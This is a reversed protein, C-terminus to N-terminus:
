GCKLNKKMNELSKRLKDGTLRESKRKIQSEITSKMSEDCASVSDMLEKKLQGIDAESGEPGKENGCGSFFYCFFIIFFIKKM